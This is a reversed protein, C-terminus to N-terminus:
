KLPHGLVLLRVVAIAVSQAQFATGAQESSRAAYLAGHNLM